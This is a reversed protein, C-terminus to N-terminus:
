SDFGVQVHLTAHVGAVASIFKTDAIEKASQLKIYDGAEVLLGTAAVPSGVGMRIDNTEVYILAKDVPKVNGGEAGAARSITFGITSLTRATNSTNAKEVDLLQQMGSEIIRQM